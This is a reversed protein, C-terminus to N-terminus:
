VINLIYIYIQIGQHSLHYFCRGIIGSVQTRDRLQSSGRSFSIAVWELVRAQFIGHVSSSPLSCDMSNCVTPCSQAVESESEYVYIYVYLCVFPVKMTTRHSLSQVGLAPLRTPNKTLSISGVHWLQSRSCGFLNVLIKTKLSLCLYENIHVSYKQFLYVLKQLLSKTSQSRLHISFKYKVLHGKIDHFLFEIM